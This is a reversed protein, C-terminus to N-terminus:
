IDYSNDISSFPNDKGAFSVYILRYHAVNCEEGFQNKVKRRKTEIQMGKSRLTHIRAALRYVGCEKWASLPNINFNQMLYSAIRKEQKNLTM